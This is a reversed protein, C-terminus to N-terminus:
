LQEGSLYVEAVAVLLYEELEDVVTNLEGRVTSLFLKWLM